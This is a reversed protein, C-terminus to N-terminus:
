DSAYFDVCWNPMHFMPLFFIYLFVCFVQMAKLTKAMPTREDFDVGQKLQAKRKLSGDFDILDQMDQLNDREELLKQTPSFEPRNMQTDGGDSASM